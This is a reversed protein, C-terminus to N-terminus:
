LANKWTDLPAATETVHSGGVSQKYYVLCNPNGFGGKGLHCSLDFHLKQGNSVQWSICDRRRKTRYVRSSILLLILHKKYPHCLASM